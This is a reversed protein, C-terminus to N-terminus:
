AFPVEQDMNNIVEAATPTSTFQFTTSADQGMATFCVNYIVTGDALDVGTLSQQLWSLTLSGTGANNTGFNSTSMDELTGAVQINQFQLLAPDFSMSYQMSVIGEFGTVSVPICVQQGPDVMVNGAIVNFDNEGTNGTGEITVTANQGNFTVEDGSNNVVTQSVPTNTFSFTTSTNGEGVTTFCVNYLVTGDVLTVGPSPEAWSLTLSGQGANNVGFDTLDLGSLTGALQINQYQLKTPDFSM